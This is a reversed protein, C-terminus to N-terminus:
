TSPARKRRKTPYAKLVEDILAQQRGDNEVTSM